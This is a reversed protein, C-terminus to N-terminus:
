IESGNRKLKFKFCNNLLYSKANNNGEGVKRAMLDDSVLFEHSVDQTRGDCVRVVQDNPVLVVDIVRRDVGRERIYERCRRVTEPVGHQRVAERHVAGHGQGRVEVHAGLVGQVGHCGHEIPKLVFLQEPCVPPVCLAEGVPHKFCRFCRLGPKVHGGPVDLSTSVMSKRRVVSPPFVVAQGLLCVERFHVLACSAVAPEILAHVVNVEVASAHGLIQHTSPLDPFKVGDDESLM